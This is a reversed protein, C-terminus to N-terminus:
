FTYFLGDNLRDKALIKLKPLKEYIYFNQTYKYSLIQMKNLLRKKKYVGIYQDIQVIGYRVEVV